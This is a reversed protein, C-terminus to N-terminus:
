KQNYLKRKNSTVEPFSVWVRTSLSFCTMWISCALSLHENEAPQLPPPWQSEASVRKPLPEWDFFAGERLNCGWGQPPGCGIGPPSLCCYFPGLDKKELFSLALPHGLEAAHCNLKKRLGAKCREGESINNELNSVLVEWEHLNQDWYRKWSM